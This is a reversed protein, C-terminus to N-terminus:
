VGITETSVSDQSVIGKIKIGTIQLLEGNEM